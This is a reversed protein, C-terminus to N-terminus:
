LISSSRADPKVRASTASCRFWSPKRGGFRECVKLLDIIPWSRQPLPDARCVPRAPAAFPKSPSCSHSSLSRARSSPMGAIVNCRQTRTPQTCARLSAVDLPCQAIQASSSSSSRIVRSRFQGRPQDSSGVRALTVLGLLRASLQRPLVRPLSSAPVHRARLVLYAVRKPPMITPLRLQVDACDLLCQLHVDEAALRRRHHALLDPHMQQTVVQHALHHGLRSHWRLHRRPLQAQR